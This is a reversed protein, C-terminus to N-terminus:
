KSDASKLKGHEKFIYTGRSWLLKPYLVIKSIGKRAHANLITILSTGARVSSIINNYTAKSHWTTYIQKPKAVLAAKIAVAKALKREARQRNTRHKM